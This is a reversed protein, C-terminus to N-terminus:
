SWRWRYRLRHTFVTPDIAALVQVRAANRGAEALALSGPLDCLLELRRPGPEAASTSGIWTIAQRSADTLEGSGLRVLYTAALASVAARCRDAVDIELLVSREAEQDRCVRVSASFHHQHMPGTLLVCVGRVDDGVFQHRHLEQYVPNVIRAPQERGPEVEVTSVLASFGAGTEAGARFELHHTWRDGIRVFTVRGVPGDIVFRDDSQTCTFEPDPM